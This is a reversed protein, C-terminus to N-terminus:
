WNGRRWLTGKKRWYKIMLFGFIMGGVHAFHAIGGGTHTFGLVLEIAGYGIVLWKAKIPMPPILLMLRTDPFMMGFALLIGFVAGSAGVTPTLMIGTWQHAAAFVKKDHYMETADSATFNSKLQELFAPDMAQELSSVQLWLVLIHLVMAGLGTILYYTLFRRSGWVEEITQGFIWLAYMNFFFHMFGGHMFMYTILQYPRFMPSEPYFLSFNEYMFDGFAYTALLMLANIIILNKVVPPTSNIFNGLPSGYNM